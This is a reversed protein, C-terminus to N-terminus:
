GTGWPRARRSDRAPGGLIGGGTDSRFWDIKRSLIELAAQRIKADRKRNSEPSRLGHLIAADGKGKLRKLLRWVQLRDGVDSGLHRSLV